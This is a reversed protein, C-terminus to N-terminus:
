SEDEVVEADVVEGTNQEAPPTAVAEMLEAKAVAGDQLKKIREAIIDSASRVEINVNTDIEVGGRVGARDLLETAAKLQVQESTAGDMLVELREVAAHAGARIRNRAREISNNELGTHTIHNRCLGADSVLGASWYQCRIGDVKIYTCRAPPGAISPRVLKNKDEREQELAMWRRTAAFVWAPAFSRASDDIILDFGTIYDSNRDDPDQLLSKKDEMSVLSKAQQMEPSIAQIYETTQGNSDFVPIWSYKHSRLKKRNEFTDECTGKDHEIIDLLTLDPLLSVPGEIQPTAPEDDPENHALDM